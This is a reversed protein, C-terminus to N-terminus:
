RRIECDSRFSTWKALSKESLYYWLESSNDEACEALYKFVDAIKEIGPRVIFEVDENYNNLWAIFLCSECYDKGGYEYMNEESEGCIDCYVCEYDKGKECNICPLEPCGCCDNQIKRM